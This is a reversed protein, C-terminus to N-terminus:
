SECQVAGQSVVPMTITTLIPIAPTGLLKERRDLSREAMQDELGNKGGENKKKFRLWGRQM